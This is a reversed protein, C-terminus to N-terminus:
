LANTCLSEKAAWLTELYSLIHDAVDLDPLAEELGEFQPNRNIELIYISDLADVMLDVAAIPRFTLAALEESVRQIPATIEEDVAAFRAGASYNGLGEASPYKKIIAISKYGVIFVRYEQANEILRQAMLPFREPTKTIVEDLDRPTMIKSVGHGRSGSLPKIILPFITPDSVLSAAARAHPLYWSDPNRADKLDMRKLVGTFKTSGPLAFSEAPESLLIGAAKFSRIVIGSSRVDRSTRRILLMDPRFPHKRLWFDISTGAL